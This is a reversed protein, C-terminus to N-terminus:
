VWFLEDFTGYTVGFWCCCCGENEQSSARTASSFRMGGPQQKQQHTAAATKLQTLAYAVSSMPLSKQGVKVKQLKMWRQSENMQRERKWTVHLSFHSSLLINPLRNFSHIVIWSMGQFGLWLWATDTQTTLNHKLLNFRLPTAKITQSRTHWVAASTRMQFFCLLM